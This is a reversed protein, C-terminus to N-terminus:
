LPLFLLGTLLKPYFDTSKQPMVEGGLAVDFVQDISCPNQLILVQGPVKKLGELAEDIERFYKLYTYKAQDELSINLHKQLIVQHLFFVDLAALVQPSGTMTKKIAETSKPVLRITENATVMVYHYPTKLGAQYAAAVTALDTKKKRKIEYLDGLQKLLKELDFSALSHVLRHTPLVVLGEDYGNVLTALINRAKPNEKSYNLTTEYRHHGDAIMLKMQSILGTLENLLKEDTIKWVQHLVGYEDTTEMIPKNSAIFQSMLQNTKKEKDQYLFFIQEMQTGTAQILKLRDAKPGSLTREHPFIIKNEYPETQVAAIFGQRIHKTGDKLTFTQFYPYLAPETESILINEKQWQELYKTAREYFDKGPMPDDNKGLILRISNYPSKQYYKEVGEPTIKDYPQTTLDDLKLKHGNNLNFRIGQFATIKAM